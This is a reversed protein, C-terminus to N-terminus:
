SQAKTRETEQAILSGKGSLCLTSEREEELRQAFTVGDFFDEKFAKDNLLKGVKEREGM